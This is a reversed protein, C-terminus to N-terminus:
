RWFLAELHRKEKKEDERNMKKQNIVVTLETNQLWVECLHFSITLFRGGPYPAERTEQVCWKGASDSPLNSLMRRTESSAREIIDPSRGHLQWEKWSQNGWGCVFCFIETEKKRQGWRELSHASDRLSRLIVKLYLTKVSPELNVSHLSSCSSKIWVWTEWTSYSKLHTIKKFTKKFM